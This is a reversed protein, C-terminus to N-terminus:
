PLPPLVADTAGLGELIESAQAGREEDGLLGLAKGALAAEYRASERRATELAEILRDRGQDTQGSLVLAHGELRLLTSELARATSTESIDSRLSGLSEIAGRPDKHLDAEILRARTEAAFAEAGMDNFRAVAETLLEVGTEVNGRRVEVRGINSEVLAAGAEFRVPGWTAEAEEFLREAEELKGQDSYIEGINNDQTATMVVDGAKSSADRGRFYLDIADDWRGDYYADIGLNNLVKGAGVWDGVKEYIELAIRGNETRAEDGSHTQNLSLLYRAHAEIVSGSEQTQTLAKESWELSEAFAGQRYRLGAMATMARARSEDPLREDALAKELLTVAADYEGAKEHLLAKKRTLEALHHGGVYQGAKEYAWDATAYEAALEAVDGLSEAVQAKDTDTLNEVDDAVKLARRYLTIAERNAYREAAREAGTKSYEWAKDFKDASFFHLSLVAAHRMARHRARREITEGVAGHLERRRRFPLGEYAVERVLPQAFRVRGTAGVHIFEALHEWVLPDDVGPTGSGLSEALLDLEFQQGFVSAERLLRRERPGLADIRAALLREVSDPVGQEQPASALEILFLPNGGSISVIEELRGPPIEPNTARTLRLSEESTLPALELLSAGASEPLPVQGPRHAWVWLWQRASQRQMISLFLEVSAPDMWQTNDFVIICPQDLVLGLLEGTVELLKPLRFEDGLDEVERTPEVRAGIPTAILPLWPELHPATSTIFRELRKGSETASDIDQLGMVRRLTLGAAWYPTASEYEECELALVTDCKTMLEELLRTKGIGIDGVIEVASLETTNLARFAQDLQEVEEIRGVLTRSTTSTDETASTLQGVSIPTIPAAKGKLEVPALESIEFTARSADVVRSTTLIQSPEAKGALRAALNVTDGMVTYGRRFAAGLDGSFVPGKAAGIHLDLPLDTDAIRRLTRLLREEPESIARPVGATLVLKVGDSSVDSSLFTVSHDSAAASAVDVLSSLASAAAPPGGSRILDGVGTVRVFGVVASRHEGQAGSLLLEDRLEDPIFDSLDIEADLQDDPPEYDSPEPPEQLLVGPLSQTSPTLGLDSAVANSLMIEGSNAAAELTLMEDVVDGVLILQKFDTGAIVATIEGRAAGQSISLPVPTTAEAFDSLAERMEHATTAARLAHDEGTFLLLLADGGFSILDADELRAVSLLETFAGNIIETIRESGVKGEKALEESLATFGSVDSFLATGEITAVGSSRLEEPGRLVLRPLYLLYRAGEAFTSTLGM